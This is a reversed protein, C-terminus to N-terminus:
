PREAALQRFGDAVAKQTPTGLFNFGREGPAARRGDSFVKWWYVGKWWPEKSLARYVAAVCRAADDPAAPRRSEEDHPAIWAARVAPYGAETFLLPKDSLKKSLEAAGRAARRVGEELAADSVKEAKALPDYFDVGVADLADWFPIAAGGSAWNAAYTLPAGTALRVAAITEKWDNKREETGKLETGVCFLAAGAAEAVVAHHVLLRRYADFWSRWAADNPMVVDGTFAGGGVWLQPKVMATMGLSRADAVARVTGEDTEGRPSTHVFGIRDSKPDRQFAYPMVSISNVSLDRLARLTELSRPAVYAGEISNSMAYSVGRLFGAPLPRRAPPRLTQRQAAERWRALKGALAGDPEVLAKAVATEGDLRAGADLWSAATGVGLVPSLNEPPKLVDEISPEVGAARAFAAFTKVDRGWWRGFRRAGAAALLLPRSLRAREAAALGACALVPSVQDPEDPASADLDVRVAGEETVLDAPRSSGTYLAKSGADPFVRVLFPRKGAFSAATKEWRSVVTKESDRVEWEVGGRKEKKLARFFEERAAIGDRDAARDITLQSGQPRFRGAKTLEGSVVVYDGPQEEVRFLRRAALEVAAEESGGITFTEAPEGPDSLLIADAKGTYARGDFEFAGEQISVPFRALLAKTGEPAPLACVHAVESGKPPPAGESAVEVEIGQRRASASLREAASPALGGCLRIAIRRPAPTKPAAAVLGLAVAAALARRAGSVAVARRAAV